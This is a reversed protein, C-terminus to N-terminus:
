EIMKIFVINSSVPRDSNADGLSVKSRNGAPNPM